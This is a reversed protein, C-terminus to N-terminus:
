AAQEDVFPYEAGVDDDADAEPASPDFDGIQDRLWDALDLGHLAALEDPDADCLLECIRMRDLVLWVETEIEPRREDDDALCFPVALATIPDKAFAIWSRWTDIVIDRGKRHWDRRFTCQALLFPCGASHDADFPRWLIVDVGGDNRAARAVQTGPDLRLQDALWEVAKPFSVPRVDPGQRAAAPRAFALARGKPGLYARLALAVIGDFAWEAQSWQRRRRFPTGELALWRLFEYVSDSRPAPEAREIRAGDRQWPYVCPALNRRRSVEELLMEIVPSADLVEEVRDDERDAADEDYGLTAEEEEAAREDREEVDAELVGTDRLRRRIETAALDDADELMMLAEAWDALVLPSAEAPPALRDAATV